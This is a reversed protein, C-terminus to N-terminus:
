WKCMKNSFIHGFKKLFDKKANPCVYISTILPFFIIINQRFSFSPPDKINGNDFLTIEIGINDEEIFIKNEAYNQSM